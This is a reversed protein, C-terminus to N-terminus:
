HTFLNDLFDAFYYFLFCYNSFLEKVFVVAKTFRNILFHKNSSVSIQLNLINLVFSIVNFLITKFWKNYFGYIWTSNLIFYM